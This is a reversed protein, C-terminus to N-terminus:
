KEAKVKVIELLIFDREKDFRKAAYLEVIQDDDELVTGIMADSALKVLNDLDPRSSKWEIGCDTVKHIKKKKLYNFVIRMSVPGSIPERCRTLFIWRMEEIADAHKSETFYRSGSRRARAWAVPRMPIEFTLKEDSM